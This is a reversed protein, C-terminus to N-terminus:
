VHRSTQYFAAPIGIDAVQIQGAQQPGRKQKLGTKMLGLTVTVNAKVCAGQIEGTTADLGSPVDVSIVPQSAQNIAEIVGKFPEDVDRNLGIGFIADVIMSCENLEKLFISDRKALLRIPQDLNQLISLNMRADAKLDSPTGILFIKTAIGKVLLHRAAVLGDGANNGRGCIISVRRRPLSGRRSKYRQSVAQAVARGANEMLVISPIGISEIGWRELEQIEKATVSNVSAPKLLLGKYNM